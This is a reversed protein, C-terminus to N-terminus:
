DLRFLYDTYTIQDHENLQSMPNAQCAAHTVREHVLAESPIRCDDIGFSTGVEWGVMGDDKCFDIRISNLIELM